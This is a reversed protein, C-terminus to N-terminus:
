LRHSDSYSTRQVLVVMGHRLFRRVDTRACVMLYAGGFTAFVPFLSVDGPIAFPLLSTAALPPMIVHTVRMVSFALAWTLPMVIALPLALRNWLVIRGVVGCCSVLFLTTLVRRPHRHKKDGPQCLTVFIVLLPPAILAGQHLFEAFLMLPLIAAGILTWQRVQVSTIGGLRPIQPSAMDQCSSRSIGASLLVIFSSMLLVSVPYTWSTIQLVVPLLCTALTPFFTAHTFLLLMATLLFGITFAIVPYGALWTALATGMLAAVTLFGPIQWAVVKWPRRDMVLLGTALAAAPPYIASRDHLFHVLVGMLALTTLVLLCRVAFMGNRTIVGCISKM